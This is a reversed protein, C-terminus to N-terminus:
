IFPRYESGIIAGLKQLNQRIAVEILLMVIIKRICVIASVNFKFCDYYTMKGVIIPKVIDDIHRLICCRLIKALQRNPNVWRIKCFLEIFTDLDTITDEDRPLYVLALSFIEFM